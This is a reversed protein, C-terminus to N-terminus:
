EPLTFTLFLQIKVFGEFSQPQNRNFPGNWKNKNNEVCTTHSLSAVISPTVQYPFFTTLFGLISYEPRPLHWLLHGQNIMPTWLVARSAIKHM